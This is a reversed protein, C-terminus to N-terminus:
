QMRSLTYLTASVNVAAGAIAADGRAASSAACHSTVIHAVIFRREIINALPAFRYLGSKIPQVQRVHRRCASSCPCSRPTPRPRLAAPAPVSHLDPPITQHPTLAWAKALHLRPRAFAYACALGRKYPAIDCGRRISNPQRCICIVTISQKRNPGFSSFHMKVAVRM